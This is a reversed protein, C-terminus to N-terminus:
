RRKIELKGAFRPALAELVGHNPCAVDVWGPYRLVVLDSGCTNCKLEKVAHVAEVINM